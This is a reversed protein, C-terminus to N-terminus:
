RLHHLTIGFVIMGFSASLLLFSTWHLRRRNM